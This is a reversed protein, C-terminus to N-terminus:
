VPEVRRAAAVAKRQRSETQNEQTDRRNKQQRHHLLPQQRQEPEAGLRAADKECKDPDAARQRAEAVVLQHAERPLEQERHGHQVQQYGAKQNCQSGSISTIRNKRKAIMATTQAMLTTTCVWGM